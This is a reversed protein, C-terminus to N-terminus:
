FRSENKLQTVMNFQRPQWGEPCTRSTYLGKDYSRTLAVCLAALDAFRTPFRCLCFSHAM